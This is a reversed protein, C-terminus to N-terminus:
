VLAPVRHGLLRAKARLYEHFKPMYEEMAGLLADLTEKKMHANYLTQQLPSEYGKLRCRNLVELKISNLSFAVADKIRDYCALEAEYAEKRM